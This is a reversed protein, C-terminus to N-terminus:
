RNSLNDILEKMEKTGYGCCGGIFIEKHSISNLFSTITHVDDSERYFTQLNKKRDEVNSKDKYESYKQENIKNCSIGFKINHFNKTRLHLDYFNVIANSSGCNLFLGYINLTFYNDINAIHSENPYISIILPTHIDIKKVIDYIKKIETYNQGTEIIYYDVKNKFIHILKEYFNIFNDDIANNHYSKNFPPLSGLVKTDGKRFNQMLEVSKKSLHEWNDTYSPKLCYNCTTIFTCGYDIYKQYLSCIFDQNHEISFEGFDKYKKNIEFVMGGDLFNIKVM